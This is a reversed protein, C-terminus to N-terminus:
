KWNGSDRDLNRCDQYNSPHLFISQGPYNIHEYLIVGNGATVKASSAIDIM